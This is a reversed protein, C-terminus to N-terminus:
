QDMLISSLFKSLSNKLHFFPLCPLIVSDVLKFYITVLRGSKLDLIVRSYYQALCSPISASKDEFYWQSIAPLHTSYQQPKLLFRQGRTCIFLFLFLSLFAAIFSSSLSRWLSFWLFRELLLSWFFLSFSVASTFFRYSYYVSRFGSM